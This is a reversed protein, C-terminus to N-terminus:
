IPGQGKKTFTHQNSTLTLPLTNKILSEQYMGLLIPSLKENCKKYFEATFGDPGPTKGSQMTAIAAQVEELEITRDLKAMKDSELCPFDLGDLFQTM